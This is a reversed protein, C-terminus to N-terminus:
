KSAAYEHSLEVTVKGSLSSGAGLAGAAATLDGRLAVDLPRADLTRVSV